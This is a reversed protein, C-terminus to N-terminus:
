SQGLGTVLADVGMQALEHDREASSAGSVGVAGVFQGDIMIAVGGGVPMMRADVKFLRDYIPDSGVVGELASTAAGGTRTVTYAKDQAIQSALTFAHDMSAFARLDGAHGVVAVAVKDGAELAGALTAELAVQAQDLSVSGFTLM